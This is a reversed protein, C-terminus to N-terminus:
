IKLFTKKKEEKQEFPKQFIKNNKKSVLIFNEFFKEKKM